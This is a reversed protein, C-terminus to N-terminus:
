TTRDGPGSGAPFAEWFLQCNTVAEAETASGSGSSSSGAAAAAAPPQSPTCTYIVDGTTNQAPDFGRACTGVVLCVGDPKQGWRVQQVVPSAHGMADLVLRATLVQPQQPQQQEQSRTAPAAAAATSSSSSSAAASSGSTGGASSGGALQLAVGNRHVVMGALPTQELVVGGAAEFRARAAAVLRAPSVGLNLVDQTWLDSGGDFGVRVPNFEVSICAEADAQSLM